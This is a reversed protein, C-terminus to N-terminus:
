LRSGGVLGPVQVQRITKSMEPFLYTNPSVSQIYQFTLLDEPQQYFFDHDALIADRDPM